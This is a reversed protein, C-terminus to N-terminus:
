TKAVSDNKYFARPPVVGMRANVYSLANSGEMHLASVDHTDLAVLWNFPACDSNKVGIKHLTPLLLLPTSGARASRLARTPITQAHGRMDM